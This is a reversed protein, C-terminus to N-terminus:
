PRPRRGRPTAPSTAPGTARSPAVKVVVHACTRDRNRSTVPAPCDDHLFLGGYPLFGHFRPQHSHQRGARNRKGAKRQECALEARCRGLLLSRRGGGHCRRYRRMRGGLLRGMPRRELLDLRHLCRKGVPAAPAFVVLASGEVQHRRFLRLLRQTEDLVANEHRERVKALRSFIISSKVKPASSAGSTTRRHRGVWARPPARGGEVGDAVANVVAGVRVEVRQAVVGHQAVALDDDVVAMRGGGLFPARGVADVAHPRTKGGPRDQDVHRQQLM